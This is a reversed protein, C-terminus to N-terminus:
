ILTRHIKNSFIKPVQCLSRLASQFFINKPKKARADALLFLALM